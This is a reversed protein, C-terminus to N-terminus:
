EERNAAPSSHKWHLRDRTLIGMRLACELCYKDHGHQVFIEGSLLLHFFDDGPKQAYCYDKDWGNKIHATWGEPLRVYLRADAAQPEAPSPQSSDHDQM